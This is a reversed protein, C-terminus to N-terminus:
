RQNKLCNQLIRAASVTEQIATIAEYYSKTAYDSGDWKRAIVFAKWQVPHFYDTSTQTM